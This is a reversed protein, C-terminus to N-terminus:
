LLMDRPRVCSMYMPSFLTCSVLVIVQLVAAADEGDVSEGGM